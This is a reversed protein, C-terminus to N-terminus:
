ISQVPTAQSLHGQKLFTSWEPESGNKWEVAYGNRYRLDVRVMEQILQEGLLALSGVFRHFISVPRERGVEIILGNSCELLWSERETVKLRGLELGSSRATEQMRDFDRLLKRSQDLPGDILPLDRFAKLDDPRFTVGSVSILRNEGFRAYPIQEEIKLVVIDPWIRQVQVARVWPLKSAQSRIRTFNVDWYGADLLPRVSAEIKTLDVYKLAGQIRVYRVPFYTKQVPKLGFELVVALMLLGCALALNQVPRREFWKKFANFHM